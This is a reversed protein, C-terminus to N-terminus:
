RPVEKSAPEVSTRPDEGRQVVPLREVAGALGALARSGVRAATALPRQRRAGTPRPPRPDPRRAHAAPRRGRQRAPAPRRRPPPPDPATRRVLEWSRGLRRLAQQDVSRQLAPLLLDEEDRVDQDLLAFTRELLEDWGQDGPQMQEIRTVLQNIEQHEEEV